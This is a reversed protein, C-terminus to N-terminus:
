GGKTDDNLAQHLEQLLSDRLLAAAKETAAPLAADIATQIRTEIEEASPAAAPKAAKHSALLVGAAKVYDGPIVVEFLMPVGNDDTYLPEEDLETV